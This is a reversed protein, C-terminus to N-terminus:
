NKNVEIKYYHWSGDKKKFTYTVNDFKDQNDNLYTWYNYEKIDDESVSLVKNELKYDSYLDLATEVSADVYGVVSNITYTDEEEMNSTIIEQVLYLAKNDCENFSFEYVGSAKDYKYTQRCDFGISDVIEYDDDDFIINYTKKLEAEEFMDNKILENNLLYYLCIKLKYELDMDETLLSSNTYIPVDQSKGLVESMSHAMNFLDILEDTEEEEEKTVVEEKKNENNKNMYIVGFIVLLCILLVAVILMIITKKNKM